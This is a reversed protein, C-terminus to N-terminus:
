FNARKKYFNKILKEAQKQNKIWIIKEDRKFWTMQRKAFQLTHLEILEKVKVLIIKKEFYELWEQYGITELVPLPGYQELLKKTEKELGLNIMKKIRNKIKKNLENKEAKIGIKLVDFIPKQKKRRKWFSEGTLKCVEIARVLRRKNNKDIFKTGEKDLKEYIKFLEEATKKELKTRLKKDPLVKPFDINNTIASIYLGTGGVLFPIKGKEMVEKIKKVALKKYIAANFNEKPSIIDILHYPINKLEKRTPKATGINMEKYIQRSDASVIEGNLKEALKIALKTKGSATPGLIVILKQLKM